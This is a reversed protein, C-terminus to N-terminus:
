QEPPSCTRQDPWQQFIYTVAERVRNQDIPGSSLLAEAIGAFVPDADQGEPPPPGVPILMTGVDWEVPVPVIWKCPDWYWGWWGWWWGGMCEWFVGQETEVALGNAAFLDPPDNEDVEDPPILTLCVPEAQMAEIIWENVQENFLQQDEDLEPADPVLDATLVSFTEYSEFDANPDSRVIIQGTQVTNDACSLALLSPLLLLVFPFCSRM